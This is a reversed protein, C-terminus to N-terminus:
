NLSVCAGGSLFNLSAVSYIQALESASAFVKMCGLNPQKIWPIFDKCIITEGQGHTCRLEFHGSAQSQAQRGM